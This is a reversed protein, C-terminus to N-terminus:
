GSSGAAASPGEDPLGEDTTLAGAHVEDVTAFRHSPRSAPANAVSDPNADVGLYRDTLVLEALPSRVGCGWGLVHGALLDRVDALRRVELWGSRRGLRPPRPADPSGM